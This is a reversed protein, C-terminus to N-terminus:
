FAIIIGFKLDGEITKFDFDGLNTTFETSKRLMDYSGQIGINKTFFYSLGIGGGYFHTNRSRDFVYNHINGLRAILFPKLKKDSSFYYKTYLGYEM